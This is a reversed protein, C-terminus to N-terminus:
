QSQAFSYNGCLQLASDSVSSRDFVHLLSLIEAGDSVQKARPRGPSFKRKSIAPKGMGIKPILPFFAAPPMSPSYGPTNQGHTPTQRPSVETSFPSQCLKISGDPSFAPSRKLSPVKDETAPSSFGSFSLESGPTTDMELTPSSETGLPISVEEPLAPESTVEEEEEKAEELQPTKQLEPEKELGQGVDEVLCLVSLDQVNEEVSEEPASAGLDMPEEMAPPSPEPHSEKTPSTLLVKPADVMNPEVEVQETEPMIEQEKGTEMPTIADHSEEDDQDVVAACCQSALPSALASSGETLTVTM